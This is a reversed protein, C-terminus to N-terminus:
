QGSGVGLDRLLEIIEQYGERALNPDDDEYAGAAGREACYIAGSTDAGRRVLTRIIRKQRRIIACRLPTSGYDQNLREIDAGHDLLWEVWEPKDADGCSELPPPIIDPTEVALPDASVIRLALDFDDADIADYICPAGAQARVGDVPPSLVIAGAKAALLRFGCYRIRWAYGRAAARCCLRTNYYSGGRGAPPRGKDQCIEWLNGLM